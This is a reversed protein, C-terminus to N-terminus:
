RTAAATGTERPPGSVVAVLGVELPDGGTRLQAVAGADAKAGAWLVDLGPTRWVCRGPASGCALAAAGANRGAALNGPEGAAAGGILLEDGTLALDGDWLALGVRVKGGGGLGVTAPVDGRGGGPGLYVAAEGRPASRHAYVVALTWGAFQSRGRPLPDAPAALWWDGAGGGRVLETVEAYGQSYVAGSEAHDTEVRVPQWAGGPGHLAVLEPLRPGSAAVILGAWRVEAGEPLALRAGSAAKEGALEELAGKPGAPGDPDDLGGPPAPEGPTPRLPSMQMLNNDGAVLCLPRPACSLLVNGALAVDVRGTAAHGLRLGAPAVPVRFASESRRQGYVAAVTVQQFGSVEPDALVPLRAVSRAGRGWGIRDCVAGTPTAECQWGDGAGSGALRMGDPLTVEIRVAGPARAEATVRPGAAAPSGDTGTPRSSPLADPGAQNEASESQEACLSAVTADKHASCLREPANRRAPESSADLWTAPVTLHGAAREDADTRDGTTAPGDAPARVPIPLTGAKGAVLDVEKYEPAAVEPAPEAVPVPALAPAPATPPAVAPPPMQPLAASPLVAPQGAPNPATPPAPSSAATLPSLSPSSQAQPAPAYLPPAAPAPVPIARPRATPPGAALSVFLVVGAVAAVGAGTGAVLNALGFRDLLRRPAAVLWRGALAALGVLADAWAGAHEKLQPWWLVLAGWATALRGGFALRGSGALYAPAAAGLLLPAVVGRLGSNEETLERHLRRCEACTSLHEDVKGRDRRALAARVYGALHAGTWHCRPNGTLAIHEQLYMQRLRERARYALAAVGNPTLGLLPAIQAPSEGEVETHWLVARWREPLRAFARAAYSTELRAITPDDAPEPIEYRTLDDTLEVRRDQRVRDYRTHRMTTLLYARFATDPGGGSRLVAFVKAFSDAILDDADAHGDSLVRALRRASELHREYLLGFADTDGGRM